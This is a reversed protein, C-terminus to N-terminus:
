VWVEDAAVDGLVGEIEEIGFAAAVPAHGVAELRQLVKGGAKLGAAIDDDKLRGAMVVPQQTM